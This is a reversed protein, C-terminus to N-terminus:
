YSMNGVYFNKSAETESILNQRVCAFMYIIVRTMNFLHFDGLLTKIYFFFTISKLSFSQCVLEYQSAIRQEFEEVLKSLM